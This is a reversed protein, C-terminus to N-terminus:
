ITEIRMAARPDVIDAIKCGPNKFIHWAPTAGGEVSPNRSTMELDDIQRTPYRHSPNIHGAPHRAVARDIEALVDILVVIRQVAIRQGVDGGAAEDHALGNAERRYPLIARSAALPSSRKMCGTEITIDSSFLILGSDANP